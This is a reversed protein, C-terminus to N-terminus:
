KYAIVEIEFNAGKPLGAVSFTSRAPKHDGFFEAYLHNMEQFNDMTTLFCTTKVIDTFNVGAHELVASLNKFAQTVEHGFTKSEINGTEPSVGLLGSFFIPSKEIATKVFLSYPGIAKPLQNM